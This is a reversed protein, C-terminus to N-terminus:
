LQVNDIIVHHGRERAENKRLSHPLGIKPPPKRMRLYGGLLSYLAIGFLLIARRCVFDLCFGRQSVTKWRALVPEQNEHCPRSEMDHVYCPLCWMWPM